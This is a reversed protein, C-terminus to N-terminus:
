VMIKNQIKGRSICEYARMKLAWLVDLRLVPTFTGRDALVEWVEGPLQGLGDFDAALSSGLEDKDATVISVGV